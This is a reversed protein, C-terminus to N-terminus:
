EMAQQCRSVGSVRNLLPRRQRPELGKGTLDSGGLGSGNSRCNGRSDCMRARRAAGFKELMPPTAPLVAAETVAPLGVAAAVAPFVVTATVSLVGSSRNGTEM